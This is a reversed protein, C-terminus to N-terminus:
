RVAAGSATAARAPAKDQGMSRLFSAVRELAASDATPHDPWAIPHEIRFRLTDARATEDHFGRRGCHTGSNDFGDNWVLSRRPHLALGGARFVSWWWLIGWSDNRGALRDELMKAYPYSDNLDFRRRVDPDCLDTTAGAAIGDFCRWARAWTAWGWTTIYPMFFADLSPPHDVPFMYGAIQFVNPAHEYRDLGQLMYDIFDPLLLLDDEVVIVRDSADCLSTVGVVISRALGLHTDREIVTASITNTWRQARRRVEVVRPEDVAEAPGDCFIHVDCEDIRRCGRLSELARDMHEPRNYAFLAIPTKSSTM